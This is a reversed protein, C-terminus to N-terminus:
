VKHSVGPTNMAELYRCVDDRSLCVQHDEIDIVCHTSTAFRVVGAAERVVIKRKPVLKSIQV